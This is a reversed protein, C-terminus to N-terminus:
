ADRKPQSEWVDVELVQGEFEMGNLGLAAATEEASSYAVCATGRPMIEVWQTKGVQDFHAELSKWNNGLEPVNNVWVKLSADIKKLPNGKGKGKGKAMGKSVGKSTPGKSAAAPSRLPAGGKSFTIKPKEFLPKYVPAPKTSAKGKGQPGVGHSPKATWVDVEIAAGGLDSGNLMEIATQAEDSTSYAVCGTCRPMLETWSVQGTQEFHTQLEKWTIGEPLGGIWVKLSADIANLKGKGKTKGKAMGTGAIM